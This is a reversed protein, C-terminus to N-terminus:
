LEVRNLILEYNFNQPSFTVLSSITSFVNVVKWAESTSKCCCYWSHWKVLYKYNIEHIRTTSCFLSINNFFWWQRFGIGCRNLGKSMSLSTSISSILSITATSTTTFVIRRMTTTRLTFPVVWVVLLPIIWLCLRFLPYFWLTFMSTLILTMSTTHFSMLWTSTMSWFM